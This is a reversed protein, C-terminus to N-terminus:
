NQMFRCSYVNVASPTAHYKADQITHMYYLKVNGSSVTYTMESLPQMRICVQLTPSLGM